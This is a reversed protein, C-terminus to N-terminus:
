AYRRLGREFNRQSRAPSMVPAQYARPWHVHCYVAEGCRQGCMVMAAGTGTLPWRCAGRTPMEVCTLGKVNPDPEENVIRAPAGAMALEKLRRSKDSGAGNVGSFEAMVFTRGDKVKLRLVRCRSLVQNYTLGLDVAMTTRSAGEEALARLRADMDDTWTASDRAPITCGARTWGMRTVKGVICNRTVGFKRGILTASMGGLWLSKVAAMNEESWIM